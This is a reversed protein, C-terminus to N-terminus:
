KLIVRDTYKRHGDVSHSVDLDRINHPVCIGVGEIAKKGSGLADLRVPM